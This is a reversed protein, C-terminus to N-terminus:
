EKDSVGAEEFTLMENMVRVAGEMIGMAVAGGSGEGLRMGLDLMPVLGLHNLMIRHGPEESCHAAFMYQAVLPCLTHAILAGATSILGDVVVPRRYFAGALICGAIAGIEFGGVKSLVDLGDRADPANIKIGRAIAAKKRAIGQADVGTGLGVMRGLDAGTIVVGIASSPTTNGIGMDGTGILEVGDTIWKEAALFGVSICQEAQSRTMAPGRALNATGRGVKCVQLRKDGGSMDPDLDPIIGADVVAVDAGVQRALVNIGAGGRLFTRIMEVTVSQPYASVGESVVGHDGAMILIAKRGIAPTLNRQIACIREAIEHLRGLARTPMVLSRTRARAKELWDGDVPEIERIIEEISQDTNM